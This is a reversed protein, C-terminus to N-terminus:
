KNNIPGYVNAVPEVTGSIRTLLIRAKMGSRQISSIRGGCYRRQTRVSNHVLIRFTDEIVKEELKDATRVKVTRTTTVLAPRIDDGAMGERGTIACTGLLKTRFGIDTKIRKMLAKERSDMEKRHKTAPDHQDMWKAAFDKLSNSKIAPM